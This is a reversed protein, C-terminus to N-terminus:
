RQGWEPVKYRDRYTKPTMHMEKKFIKGFYSQSPFGVYESIEALGLDSYRLFNSARDVRVKVVYDQLLIGTDKKFLRSLYAPSIGLTDAMVELHIKERYHKAIYSKAQETYNSTHNRSLKEHVLDTLERICYDRLGLLQTVSSVTGCKQIYYGSLRYASEPSLGGEIAARSTLTIAVIALNRWHTLDEKALRGADVDMLRSFRLAEETRGERVADMLRREERYTHRWTTSDENEDEERLLYLAQERVHGKRDLGALGNRFFIETEEYVRDNLIQDVLEIIYLIEQFTFFRLARVDDPVIGYSQYFRREAAKDQRRASLPGIYCYLGKGRTCAFYVEFKDRCMFPFDLNEAGKRLKDRLAPDTMVPNDYPVGDLCEIRNAAAEGEPLAEGRDAPEEFEVLLDTKTVLAFKRLTELIDPM